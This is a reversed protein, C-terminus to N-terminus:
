RGEPHGYRAPDTSFWCPDCQTLGTKEDKRVGPKKERCQPCTRWRKPADVEDLRPM